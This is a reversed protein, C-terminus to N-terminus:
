RLLRPRPRGMRESFRLAFRGDSAGLGRVRDRVEDRDVSNGLETVQQSVAALSPSSRGTPRRACFRRLTNRCPRVAPPSGAESGGYVNGRRAATRKKKTM